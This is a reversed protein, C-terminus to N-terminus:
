EYAYMCTCQTHPSRHNIPIHLCNVFVRPDFRGATSQNIATYQEDTFKVLYIYTSEYYLTFWPVPSPTHSVTCGAGGGVLTASQAGQVVVNLVFLFLNVTCM